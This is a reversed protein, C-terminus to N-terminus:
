VVPGLGGPEKDFLVFAVNLLHIGTASRSPYRLCSRDAFEIKLLCLLHHPFQPCPRFDLLDPNDEDTAEDKAEDKAENTAEDKAEGDDICASSSSAM